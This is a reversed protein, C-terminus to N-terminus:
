EAAAPTTKVPNKARNATGRFGRYSATTAVSSSV